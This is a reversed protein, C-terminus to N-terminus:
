QPRPGAEGPQFFLRGRTTRSRPPSAIVTIVRYQEGTPAGALSSAGLSAPEVRFQRSIPDAFTAAWVHLGFHTPQDTQQRDFLRSRLQSPAAQFQVLLGYPSDGTFQTGLHQGGASTVQHSKRAPSSGAPVSNLPCATDRDLDVAAPDSHSGNDFFLRTLPLVFRFFNRTSHRSGLTTMRKSSSLFPRMPQPSAAGDDVARELAGIGQDFQDRKM